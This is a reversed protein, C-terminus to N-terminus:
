FASESAVKQLTDGKMCFTRLQEEKTIDSGGLKQYLEIAPKNWDFVRWTMVACKEEIAAKAVARFLATGTGKGRYASAVYLDRLYVTPGELTLYTFYYLGYGIIKKETEGRNSETTEAVKCYFFARSGFGHSALEEYTTKVGEPYKEFETLEKILGHIAACDERKAGRIVVSM